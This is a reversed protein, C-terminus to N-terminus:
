RDGRLGQPDDGRKRCILKIGPKFALRRRVLEFGFGDLLRILSRPTFYICHGPPGFGSRRRVDSPQNWHTLDPTTIYLIGGPHLLGAITRCFSRVNPVHEIVESSYVIDFRGPATAAFEEVTGCFFENAPFHRRAYGIAPPELDVGTAALGAERAAEVIFGGSCGIDLLRGAEPAVRRLARVRRRARRMKKDPKAFYGTTAGNATDAYLARTEASGPLPYVFLTACEGCSFLDFGNAETFRSPRSGLCVPCTPVPSLM